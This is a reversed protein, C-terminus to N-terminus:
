RRSEAGPKRCVELAAPMDPVSGCCSAACCLVVRCLVARFLVASLAGSYDSYADSGVAPM